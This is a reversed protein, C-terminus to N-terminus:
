VDQMSRETANIGSVYASEDLIGRGYGFRYGLIFDDKKCLKRVIPDLSEWAEEAAMESDRMIDRM